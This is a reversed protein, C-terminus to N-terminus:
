GDIHAHSHWLLAVRVDKGIGWAFVEGEASVALTFGTGCAVAKMRRKALHSVVQPVAHDGNGTFVGLGM